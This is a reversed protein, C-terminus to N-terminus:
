LCGVVRAVPCQMGAGPCFPPSRRNRTTSLLRNRRYSVLSSSFRQQKRGSSSAKALGQDERTSCARTLNMVVVGM